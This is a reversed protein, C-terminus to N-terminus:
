QDDDDVWLGKRCCKDDITPRLHRTNYHPFVLLLPLSPTPRVFQQLLKNENTTKERSGKARKGGIHFHEQLSRIMNEREREKNPWFNYEKSMREVIMARARERSLSLPPPLPRYM